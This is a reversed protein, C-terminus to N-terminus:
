PAHRGLLIVLTGAICLGAGAMDWVDPAQGEVRWLWLLSAVIYIGGYAAYARGAFDLDARTLLFAFLILSLLGGLVWWGSAGLRVIAWIAFCGAIEFLAAAGYAGLTIALSKPAPAM